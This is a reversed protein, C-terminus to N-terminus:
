IIKVLNMGYYVLHAIHYEMQDKKNDPQHHDFEKLGIDYVIADEKINNFDVSPVRM